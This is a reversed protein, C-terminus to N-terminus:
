LKCFSADVGRFDFVPDWTLAMRVVILNRSCFGFTIKDHVAEDGCDYGRDDAHQVGVAPECARRLRRSHASTSALVFDCCKNAAGLARRRSRFCFGDERCEVRRGTKSSDVDM